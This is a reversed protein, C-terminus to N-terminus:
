AGRFSLKLGEGLGKRGEWGCMDTELGGWAWIDNELGVSPLKEGGSEWLKSTM